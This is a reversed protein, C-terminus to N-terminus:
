QQGGRFTVVRNKESLSLKHNVTNPDLTLQCYDHPTLEEKCFEELRKKLDSISRRVGEFSLNEYVTFSRSEECGSSVSLAQFSQLFQIHDETHELQELETNRRKLDGIEQELKELLEETQSLQNREQDRILKIVESRKREISRILEAFIRESDEVAAQASSKLTIVTQKVEQLEREKEQLRQQSRGQVEKLESQREAREAVAAVTDHGKHEHMTCLYCVCSQDTRCYIEILKGHQSCIKEQLRTSAEVLQHKEFAPSQYHSQVHTECYSALCVLCSRIAKLKRGTCFDCEVYGPGTPSHAPPSATQLETKKMKELMEVMMNNRRLVPRPTFTERCQPCSYVGTQDEQDWFGNICVMCYSHGCHITVPDKLLDLCVPCVFQHHDVSISAEAMKRCECFLKASSGVGVVEFGAYLPQTFTTHVMHLLTMTDSVSYFSLTGASHDVYVGVRSPSPASIKTQISNHYLAPPSCQLSWSQDNFGFVCEDGWGKRSIGKYSVSVSVWCLAGYIEQEMRSWEVEWYCRGSVSEKSLVQLVSDFRGPHDSYGQELGTRTVVRNEEDLSLKHHVTNPDLTLQRYYQLFEERRNKPESPLPKQVAASQLFKERTTPESPLPKQVAAVTLPILSIKKRRFEEARERLGSVSKRMGGLSLYQSTISASAESGSSVSLSQFTQLFQIPDETHELEELETNRKKLEEIEQELKELLEEPQSLQNREQARIQKVAETFIRERDEVAAQASSKITTVTQKVEQLKKEKEQLRKLSKRQVNQLKTEKKKREVAAEVTDHGKHEDMTCRYCIYSQDTRCYFEMLKDHQSCIKEQLRTSAEVLKHKILAPIELHPKLHAECYSALCVLCSKIAKLKTGTCFDCEVDGPGAYPEAPPPAAAQLEPSKMMKELMEVMMNNRRLVPRPTFTERCQPCSYVGGQDDQDWCGNICVMCFSHGCHITVPDKLLDLCVPCVFQDQDVSISAEAMKRCKCLLKASSRLGLRFGAYLPQTFTTHVTHLLTMTDSVSYFSLTGASHDVYVGVKSPSAGPLETEISNHYFTLRSSCVLSWSQANRGFKSKKGDGKRHIGKYSVSISVWSLASFAGKVMRKCEVEWYCRGSVSERCLVQGWYDFREPHDPYSQGGGNWTVVRNQKSLSLDHNATNPDLTLQRYYQLFEERTTPESPLPKQVAAAYPSFKSLEQKCFEEVREKLESVSKRVGDFSLHQHFTISPLDECGSSVRLSQFSQLFQIHDETHELQELETNRRKLDAIEQELKGLLEKTQSLQNREQDRILKMVESRKREISRILETFIRESDEVATQASSENSPGWIEKETPESSVKITNITQKLEQLKEEKEQLRQQSRRQVEKLESQKGAREAVTAVTDHGKHEHMTCLYCICSQDTRCYIEMLKDHQSCIKEQLRTSAEVLKHKILAPIELHPKLHAECLSAVCALCSKIAKLKRGTCFDCEVDGPGAYPEAPPPAAAQLEPSKKMKELMEVMMNNRRLVPRPTFTERCQPCSYVGGQDDQDWCGNICVMCFSHGCHITVPDKLLDLCVPCSFQDQDVSISAEAMKRCECVADGQRGAPSVYLMQGSEMHESSGPGVEFGAYLPQTFTTHVTHLLTMTDSVSYFSLTGARHDVYVGVRSPSPASIKTQIGNHHFTLTHSCELSWSQSNRGFKSKNGDGKRRTGNYSVSISVWKFEGVLLQEVKSLNVEWYCRGSVSQKCLVQSVSDFRGPHSPHHRKGGKNRVARNNESLRLKHHATDPDLTLQRYYLLFEDRTKPESSLIKQVAAVHPSIKNFEERCFEELREKLDSVSNKEGDFSLHQHVAINSPDECGSDGRLTQFSQLFQVHDVTLSLQELETNRRKLDATEKELQGLFEDAQSVCKREISRILETFIRESDEVATKLTNVAQKVEQLKKKREQLRKQSKRQIEKLEPEKKKREVAAEVTDHGKHEDMTCRYCIYSQDTRCYIEMLKDHQSCIKEQLRTSAEVLKHKILAPIELHPKLHAECYSALCVLCSKIAKLKRGTCFDCEVDGPGAYPEAPPPAAAQLEPKKMMKELMEVMMNNRRLVPRPTFTERCQPCSYVGGQDDQDWCGNICVMCFSHGCPTTVPDKLLDLCVPCRFQDQYVSISAEAMKRCECVALGLGDQRTIGSQVQPPSLSDSYPGFPLPDDETVLGAKTKTSVGLSDTHPPVTTLVLISPKTDCTWFAQHGEVEVGVAGDAPVTHPHELSDCLKVTSGPGVGFGPYLPQTFTTHVTHLLTMTDSVSYFSLTGASHDVYVGIRPASSASIKTQINNHWFTHTSYQLGWSQNNLGFVCENGRGKRRIGKYSVSISVWSFAGVLGQVERSWEVEWYFRGSVSERCLVQSVSDFREPHDPHRRQGGKNKVARNKEFLKLKPHVTNPDLTLQCYDLVFLCLNKISTQRETHRQAETNALGVRWVDRYPATSTGLPTRHYDMGHLKFMRVCNRCITRYPHLHLSVLDEPRTIVFVEGQHQGRHRWVRIRQADGGLSFRSEDSFIVRQWESDSWSLRTRCWQLTQHRHRPTLSLRPLPRHMYDQTTCGDALPAASVPHSMPARQIDATTAHPSIKNFEEKCFEELREKLDSISKRVGDFSLHQHVAINSSDEGGSDVRLTQFSQLFQIHDETHELQGLEANRRKLDAIEQELKELFEEAQSLQNREQARILETVDSCKRKISRILEAFIRESDEVATQASSKLTNVAQKVEQLKKEKEQLRKLSKRQIEELEPQQETREAAAAITDHGKHEEMTCLYCIYSQDTRCYFEMLKDHHPCIKEQLQTSAKVLQHKKFEPSQYHSQVHTECYSALCVLCSRIAKLKRGTCSDCEVDGPGAYPEAPSAAQLKTRYVKEVVGALMNNRRLVPRPIFTQRCQPCSYVGRQNNEDWHRNICVMCYSHGCHITVPDKLLDLCVPCSLQDQDVSISAEAMRRCGCFLRVSSRADVEFGAYLPQTFTTHVRHLLTMTDAISYFSLIGASHDVYVGVTPCARGPIETRVNNHYFTLNSSCALSWSQDNRGFKCEDGEGNRSIGNYSVSISVCNFARIQARGEKRREVEWYCRGSVSEKCLVQPWYEFREPHDPYLQEGRRYRVVRNQESLSLDHNVTNPDLTLQHFYQLFEERSKPELSLSKPVKPAHQSFKSLGRKCFEMEREKLHSFSERVGDSSRHQHFTISPSDACETPAGLSQYSQIFYVPDETHELEELETNRRKLDGIEQQLQELFEDTQSLHNREQARILKIVEVAAQASCTWVTAGHESSAKLYNAAQKMEQLNKEKEQLIRQSRRQVENLQFSTQRETHRRAATNPLGVRWVDRYPATSTGLPTRHYDMGHLKFMRVCNRCITRYPHLHLSVLGEPRPVVFREDQHQGRHRWVRIRQADGGLSFRSEDSFIVRQWESDSWSLRTRCWQLRQHRHRPTLSLRPLPRHAHLGAHHLRRGITSCQQKTREVGAAVTDHGKHEHMMCLYCIYSQDTRCYIKVVEDHRPCIQEQLRTSAEVLQHKILAPIQLHPKLHAECLSAVCVLCSKIAKLKRGTCFDCAVDGPGAYRDAPRSAAAQLEPKKKLKELMEAIFYNKRLVPRPSLTERCQPCSYLGWQDEQDWHGNICVMCYSHGCAITVPDTLLDLCVPCSFQDQDLSISAEAMERCECVSLSLLVRLDTKSDRQSPWEPGPPLPNRARAFSSSKLERHGPMSTVVSATLLSPFTNCASVSEPDCLRLSGKKLWFGCYLPQTFTTHVTHLLTMTDSVSYFSLTGASHDVYVGIRSSSPGSLKTEVNNHWFSLVSSCLLSWSINNGGFACKGGKGKRSIEKYSVSISVGWGGNNWDVEWYSRGSVCEVSLVQPWPDFREPHGSYRQAGGRWSVVRNKESLLLKHFVTNPDLTLRCFYQLFEERTTPESPLTKQVAAAAYHDEGEHLSPPIVTGFEQKYFEELREKLDSVSKRVGDFSLHQHVTISPSDECGSSVSLSQFSKLFQIPDETRELQELEANRRKLDAIEQGLKELLDETQRLQNREQDRILKIVESRKREISRILEAFIRESDEVAAQASSKLTVVSQKLEKLREEKEQLTQQSRRQVEELERQREAREAAAEVTDHGKHEHMMCLYCIYGQDSHCYIEILKGHQSCIKEQLRTSAEVLQHKEFAPSQFHSQVHTECYSALCVLCSRIAKLKRGTCFDCEVDGPGAYCHAPPSAAQLETLKVKEVVEALMNNRRLVPRPIFTQRCQPCSYVGRQDDQDWHRNICVMCYSHGCHITVPDKLLDLCVPCVFQDQEVSISAEAM